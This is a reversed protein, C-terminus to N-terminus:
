RHSPGQSDLTATPFPANIRWASGCEPCVTCGDDAAPIDALAYGCSPCYGHSAVLRVIQARGARIVFWMVLPFPIFPILGQLAGKVIPSLPIMPSLRPSIFIWLIGWVVIAGFGLLSPILVKRSFQVKQGEAFMRSRVAIPIPSPIGPMIGLQRQPLMPVSTGRDDTCHM